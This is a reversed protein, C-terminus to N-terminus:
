EAAGEEERQLMSDVVFDKPAVKGAPSHTYVWLEGRKDPDNNNTAYVLEVTGRDGTHGRMSEREQAMVTEIAVDLDSAVIDTHGFYWVTEFEFYRYRFYVTCRATGFDFRLKRGGLDLAPATTGEPLRYELVTDGVARYTSRLYTNM